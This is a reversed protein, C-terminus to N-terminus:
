ILARGPFPSSEVFKVRRRSAQQRSQIRFTHPYEDPLTTVASPSLSRPKPWTSTYMPPLGNMGYNVHTVKVWENEFPLKFAPPAVKLAEQSFVVVAFKYFLAAFLLARTTM